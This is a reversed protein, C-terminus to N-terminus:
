DSRAVAFLTGDDPDRFWVVDADSGLVTALVWPATLAQTQIGDPDPETLRLDVFLESGDRYTRVVEIGYGGTPRQALRIGVLTERGFRVEPLPPTSGPHVQNWFTRLEDRDRLLVFRDRDPAAGQAGRAIVEHLSTRQPARYASADTEVGTQVHFLSHRYEDVGDPARPAWAPRDREAEDDDSLFDLVTRPEAEEDPREWSVVKRAGDSALGRALADAEAPTLAGAGRFPNSVPRPAFDVVLPATMDRPLEFWRDGDFYWARDVPREVTLRLDSSLPVRVARLPPDGVADFRDRLFPEEDDGLRHAGAVAFPVDEAADGVREGLAVDTGEPLPLRAAGGFAYGYRYREVSTEDALVVEHLSRTGEPACAATWLLGALGLLPLLNRRM